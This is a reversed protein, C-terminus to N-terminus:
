RNKNKNKSLPMTIDYICILYGLEQRYNCTGSPRNLYRKNSFVLFVTIFYNKFTNITGHSGIKFNKKALFLVYLDRSCHM